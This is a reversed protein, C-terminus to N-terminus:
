ERRYRVYIDGVLLDTLDDSFEKGDGFQEKEPSWGWLRVAAGSASPFESEVAGKAPRTSANKIRLKAVAESVQPDLQTSITHSDVTFTNKGYGNLMLTGLSKKSSIGVTEFELMGRVPNIRVLVARIVFFLLLAALLIEVALLVYTVVTWPDYREFTINIPSLNDPLYERNLSGPSVSVEYTGSTRLEPLTAVVQNPNDSSVSMTISRNTASRGPEVLDVSIVQDPESTIQDLDLPRGAMDQFEAQVQVPKIKGILSEPLPIIRPLDRIRQREDNQPSLVNLHILTTPYVAFAQSLGEFAVAESGDPFTVKASTVVNWDGPTDPSMQAEYLGDAVKSLSVPPRLTGDPQHLEAQVSWPLAPDEVYVGGGNTKVRVQVPTVGNQPQDGTPSTIEPVISEVTFILSEDFLQATQGAFELTGQARVAYKGPMQTIVPDVTVFTNPATGTRIELPTVSGDPATLEAELLISHQPSMGPDSGDAKSLKIEVPVQHYLQATGAPIVLSPKLNGVAFTTGWNRFLSVQKGSDDRTTGTLYVQYNGPQDLAINQTSQWTGDGQSVLDYNESRGDPLVVRAQAAIPYQDLEQIRQQSLDRLEISLPVSDFLDQSQTPQLLNAQAFLRQFVVTATGASSDVKQWKWPGPSPNEVKITEIVEGTPMVKVESTSLDLLQGDPKFFAIESGPQPKFVSFDARAVYPPVVFNEEIICSPKDTPSADDNCVGGVMMTDLVRVIDDPIKANRESEIRTVRDVDAFPNLVSEWNSQQALWSTGPASAQGADETANLGLVWIHYGDTSRSSPAVPLNEDIFASIERFYPTYFDTGAYRPDDEWGERYPAGDTLIVIGRTSNAGAPLDALKDFEQKVLELGKLVDTNTMDKAVATAQLEAYKENWDTENWDPKDRLPTIPLDVSAETGFSVIGIRHHASPRSYLNDIGLFQLVWKIANARQEYPDNKEMSGSQDVLFVLDLGQYPVTDGLEQPEEQAFSHELGSCQLLSFAFCVALSFRLFCAQGLLKRSHSSQKM